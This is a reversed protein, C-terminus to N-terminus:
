FVQFGVSTNAGEILQGDSGFQEGFAETNGGEFIFLIIFSLFLKRRLFPTLGAVLFDLLDWLYRTSNVNFFAFKFWCKVLERKTKAAGRLPPWDKKREKRLREACKGRREEEHTGEQRQKAISLLIPRDRQHGKQADCAPGDFWEWVFFRREVKQGRRWVKMDGFILCRWDYERM